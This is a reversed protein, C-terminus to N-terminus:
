ARSSFIRTTCRVPPTAVARLATCPVQDGLGVIPSLARVATPGVEDGFADRCPMGVEPTGGEDDERIASLQAVDEVRGRGSRVEGPVHRGNRQGEHQGGAQDGYPAAEGSFARGM